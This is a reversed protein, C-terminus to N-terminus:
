KPNDAPNTAVDVAVGGTIWSFGDVLVTSDLAQDATDWIAFRISLEAGGKVPARTTLWRTAGADGWLDFGTGALESAGSPCYPSPAAPCSPNVPAGCNTAFVDKGTPDCVDFYALNVSVPNTLADFSINGNIAGAPPPTVLAIFQDNYPTCVWEPFEFSHFKFSFAYGTANTPARLTVELAIDDNIITGGDCSPVVQPFGAPPDVNSTTTCSQSGCSGPGDPLRAHGSSLALLRKGAQVHVNPGFGDLLGVQLGPARPDVGNAGIYRASLVGWRRDKKATPSPDAQQCLEVARAGDLPDADDLVFGEDCPAPLAAVGDCDHDVPQPPGGDVAELVDVAGPNKSPDCDDCDGDLPSWGDGDGDVAPDLNCPGTFGTSTTGDHGGPGAGGIGAGGAGSASVSGAGHGSTPSTAGAGGAGDDCAVAASAAGGLALALLALHAHKV